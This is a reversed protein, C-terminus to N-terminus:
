IFRVPVGLESAERAVTSLGEARSAIVLEDSAAMWTAAETRTTKGVFTASVGLERAYRELASREPGDGVVVIHTGRGRAHAYDIARHVRKGQTLRGVVSVVTDASMARRRARAVESDVRLEEIPSARVEAIRLVDREATPPLAALLSNLLSTSVFRWSSMSSSLHSVVRVRLAEPLALLLRVDAGHSVGVVTSPDARGTAIPWVSPVVWHAIVLEVDLSAVCNRADHVWRSAGIIQAPSRAIRAAVGPWGFASGGNLSRVVVGHEDSASSQGARSSPVIVTVEDGAAARARAEARVFHGAPDDPGEPYSTTVIAVRM